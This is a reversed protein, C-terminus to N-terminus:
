HGYITFGRIADISQMINLHTTGFMVIFGATAVGVMDGEDNFVPGGSNGPLVGCDMYDVDGGLKAVTGRSYSGSIGLPSGLVHIAQGQVLSVALKFFPTNFKDIHILALDHAKSISKITARYEKGNHIVDVTTAGDVCHQATLIDGYPSVFSGACIGYSPFKEIRPKGRLSSEEKKNSPRTTRLEVLKGQADAVTQTSSASCGSVLAMSFLFLLTKM